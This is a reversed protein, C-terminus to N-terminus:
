PNVVIGGQTATMGAATDSATLSQTGATKLSATFSHVGGDAATFTYSAPLAAQPDTSQFSVTGTYGTAVNGYADRATVTFTGATGATASSPFASVSLSTAPAAQVTIGALTGSLGATTDSAPISRAGATKLTA